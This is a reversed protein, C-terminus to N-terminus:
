ILTTYIAMRYSRYNKTFPPKKSTAQTPPTIHLFRFETDYVHVQNSTTKYYATSVCLLDPTIKCFQKKRFINIKTNFFKTVMKAM